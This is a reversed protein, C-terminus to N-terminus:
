FERQKKDSLINKRKKVVGWKVGGINIGDATGNTINRKINVQQGKIIKKNIMTM